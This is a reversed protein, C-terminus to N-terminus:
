YNIKYNRDANVVRVDADISIDRLTIDHWYPTHRRDYRGVTNVANVSKNVSNEKVHVM